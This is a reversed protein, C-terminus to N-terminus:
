AMMSVATKAQPDIACDNLYISRNKQTWDVIQQSIKDEFAKHAEMQAQMQRPLAQAREVFRGLDNMANAFSVGSLM